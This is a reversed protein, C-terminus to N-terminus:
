ERTYQPPLTETEELSGGDEEELGRLGSDQAVRVPRSRSTAPASTVSPQAQIDAGEGHRHVAAAAPAYSGTRSEQTSDSLEPSGPHVRNYGDANGLGSRGSIKNPAISSGTTESNSTQPQTFPTPTTTYSTNGSVTDDLFFIYDVLPDSLLVLSYERRTNIGIAPRPSDRTDFQALPVSRTESALVGTVERMTSRDRMSYVRSRRKRRLFIGVALCIFTLAAIGGVAGGVAAGINTKSGSTPAGGDSSSAGGDSSSPATETIFANETQILLYDLFFAGAESAAIELSHTGSSPFSETLLRFNYNPYKTSSPPTQLPHSQSDITFTGLSGSTTNAILM